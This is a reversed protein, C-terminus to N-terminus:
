AASGPSCLSIGHIRLDAVVLDGEEGLDGLDGLDDVDGVLCRGVELM